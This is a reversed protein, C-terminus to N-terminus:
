EEADLVQLLANDPYKKRLVHMGYRYAKSAVLQWLNKKLEPSHIADKITNTLMQVPQMNDYAESLASELAQMDQARQQKARILDAQLMASIDRRKM